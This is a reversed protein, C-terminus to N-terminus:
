YTIRVGLQIYRPFNAQQTIRGFNANGFATNPGNFQPTNFANTAEARFQGKFREMVTFTKLLSLDWNVTGPSRYSLTRPVNGFTFQPATTFANANLYSDLRDQLRGETEPAFGSRNPRMLGNGFVSNFNQNQFVSLPFGTQFMYVSNIQWGGAIQNWLASQSLFAKNKGFPLEYSISGKVAHPTHSTSWGYEAGLDYSNQPSGPISTFFNSSGFSADKNRSWTWSSLFSLGSSFRKQAKVVMSDYLADNFNNFSMSVTSFQPHPRLLQLRQVNASGVINSGGRGFFPNPVNQLLASGQSLKDATLQNVNVSGSGLILNTTRSGVYGVAMVVGGPMQRQWDFAIQHVATSGANPNMFSLAQGIGSLAGLSNGVPKSLGNPFPNSLSGAPTQGGDFSGVYDTPQSYGLSSFGGYSVPAWFIGYGGRITTKPSWQYAVGIRPAFKKTSPSCCETPAGDVGAYQLAGRAGQGIPNAITPDFGVILNNNRERLGTEYEYRVGLNLTLKSNVRFDDHFYFGHYKVYQYYKTNLTVNGSAPYGLLLSALDSGTGDNGRNPDRRTFTDNFTYSGPAAFNIFDINLIRYDYGAKFSHRGVFKAVSALANRSHFVSQTGGGSGFSSFTQMSVVPFRQSPLQSVLSTPFGLSAVDFGESEYVTANPFRNFGYRFSLVTTANPTITHNTQTSDVKRFLLSPANGAVNNFLNGSPERSKYHLYSLNAKWWSFFEHDFKATYQDARDVLVDNGLYATDGFYGVARSPNPYYSALKLGIPNLRSAPLIGNEFATRTVVGTAADLRSTLPDFITFPRGSRDLSRSFNGSRELATPTALERSLGSKQRYAEQSVFWFTKNRGNYVKPIWIPGGISGGFNRFPQDPRAIGNRNNFFSNALFQKERLYGMFSGHLQNSGSKLFTNFMGGGTRGVEADFTSAQIKVEMVAEMTPIIVARNTSDTIPVGDLLYNNGRIPGGAISIASSGSQDQMRNFRPDGAQVVNPALKAFMFPNRGLNPLDTMKQADIVQGTSANATEMLPVEETVNISHTVEGVNMKFDLTLFTQTAIIVGTRDLRSFGPSEISVTYTAPNVSQFVYEGLDNTITSRAINTSEDKLTVKAIGIAAGAPDKVSGRLGGQYSQAQLLSAFCVLALALIRLRM